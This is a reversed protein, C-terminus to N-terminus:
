SAPPIPIGNIIDAIFGLTRVDDDSEDEALDYDVAALALVRQDIEAMRKHQEDTLDALHAQLFLRNGLAVHTDGIQSDWYKIDISYSNLSDALDKTLTADM